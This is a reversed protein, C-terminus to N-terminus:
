VTIFVRGKDGDVKIRQGSKIIRTAGPINAVAPIGYERAVIAGHSLVGGREMVLGRAGPFLPAWGPDTSPCVLIYGTEMDESGRPPDLLVKAEGIATGGSVPTGKLSKSHPSELLPPDGIEHLSDSFIVDPIEISLFRSRIQKREEIDSHFSTGAILQPLEDPTLYFIDEVLDLHRQGLELLANRILEYGMMLYFKATERYPMYRQTYQVERLIAKGGKGLPTVGGKSERKTLPSLREHPDPLLSAGENQAQDKGISLRERLHEEAKERRERQSTFQAGPNLEDHRRFMNVMSEVYTTDERWRPRALELEGVARHGYGELFEQMTLQGQAVDWLKQNTEVTLDGDLGVILSELMDRGEDGFCRFLAKQLNAYSMGALVSAKLGDKAFDRLVKSIWEDIKRLIDADSLKTLEIRRQEKIYTLYEPIIKTKLKTDYDKRVRKMKQHAAIM